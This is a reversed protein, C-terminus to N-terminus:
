GTLFRTLFGLLSYNKFIPSDRGQDTNDAEVDEDELTSDAEEVALKMFQQEDGGGSQGSTRASESNSSVLSQMANLLTSM